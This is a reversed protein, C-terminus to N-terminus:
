KRKKIKKKFMWFFKEPIKGLQFEDIIKNWSRVTIETNLEEVIAKQELEEFVQIVYSPLTTNAFCLTKERNGFLYIFKTFM